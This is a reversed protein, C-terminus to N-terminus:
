SFWWMRIWKSFYRVRSKRWNVNKLSYKVLDTPGPPNEGSYNFTIDSSLCVSPCVSPRLLRPHAPYGVPPHAGGVSNLQVLQIWDTRRVLIKSHDASAGQDTLIAEQLDHSRTAGIIHGQSCVLTIVALKANHRWTIATKNDHDVQTKTTRSVIFIYSCLKEDIKRM